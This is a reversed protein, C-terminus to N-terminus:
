TAATTFRGRYGKPSVGLTRQFAVRMTEPSGFGCRAAIDPVGRSTEELLRRAAEVRAREVYRGPTVGVDRVFVRHFNRPSMHVRGALAEISLDSGPHELVWTQMERLPERDAMQSSLQVSFQAQGGPRKLFVVMWQAVILAMRRGLDEEVLGLMLDIGATSGASTYYSGDRVYIPDSQVNIDPFRRALEGCFAWHTTAKRGALLGAEALLFTGTCLGVLRHTRPAVRRLWRLLSPDRRADDPGDIGTVILTHIRGRVSRYSRNAALRIGPWARVTEVPSVAEVSYAPNSGGARRVRENVVYFLDLVGGVEVIEASPMVLMVVRRPGM